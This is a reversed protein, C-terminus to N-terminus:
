QRTDLLRLPVKPPVFSWLSPLKVLIPPMRPTIATFEEAVPTAPASETLSLSCLDQEDLREAFQDFATESEEEDSHASPPAEDETEEMRHPFDSALAVEPAEDCESEAASQATIAQEQADDNPQELVRKRANSESAPQFAVVCDDTPKPAPPIEAVCEERESDAFRVRKCPVSPRTNRLAKFECLVDYLWRKITVKSWGYMRTFACYLSNLFLVDNTDCLQQLCDWNTPISGQSMLTSPIRMRLCLLVHQPPCHMSHMCYAVIVPPILHTHKRSLDRFMEELLGRHREFAGVLIKESGDDAAHECFRMLRMREETFISEYQTQVEQRFSDYNDAVSQM